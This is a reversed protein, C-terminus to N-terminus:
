SQWPGTLYPLKYNGSEDHSERTRGGLISANLNRPLARSPGVKTDDGLSSPIIEEGPKADARKYSWTPRHQKVKGAEIVTEPYSERQRLPGIAPEAKDPRPKIRSESLLQWADAVYDRCLIVVRLAGRDKGARARFTVAISLAEQQYAICAEDGNAYAARAPGQLVTSKLNCTYADQAKIGVLSIM